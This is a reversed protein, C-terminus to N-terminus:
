DVPLVLIAGAAVNADPLGNAREIAAVTTRPDTHPAIREAITWLSDGTGVVVTRPLVHPAAEAPGSGVALLAGSLAVLAPLVILVVRGRRTLRLPAQRAGVAPRVAARADAATPRVGVVPTRQACAAGGRVAVRRAPAAATSTAGPATAGARMARTLTEEYEIWDNQVTLMAIGKGRGGDHEFMAELTRGPLFMKSQVESVPHADISCM